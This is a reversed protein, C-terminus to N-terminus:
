YPSRVDRRAVPVSRQASAGLISPPDNSQVRPQMVGGRGQMVSPVEGPVTPIVSPMSNPIRVPTSEIMAPPYNHGIVQETRGSGPVSGVSVATPQQRGQPIPRAAGRERAREQADWYAKEVWPGEALVINNHELLSGKILHLMVISKNYESLSRYFELQARARRETARLLNDMNVPLVGQGQSVLNEWGEVDRQSADWQNLKLQMQQYHSALLAYHDSLEHLAALEKDELVAHERALSLQANRLGALQRRAGFANPLIELRVAGEQFDGGTLGEFASSGPEPFDLGSRQSRALSDGVGLWRYLASVNVDPLLQNKASIMEMERQKINWRQQRLEVNRTLTEGQITYWDFEVRAETADDIPRILRGDTPAWGMLFRLKRERGVVGEDRGPLNAGGFAADVEAKFQHVQARAQAEVFEAAEGAQMRDRVTRWAKLSTEHAERATEVAWYAAQLDWYALEVEKVLNRVTIEYQALSIDENIRALVVPVRNVMTGRGRALPHQLQVELAQTWDSPLARGLGIPINNAGYITQSRVTAVGGTAIRKSIATQFSSDRGNFLTPQFINGAGVNRPRDTNGYGFVTSLQADFEALANEVGGVQNAQVAGRPLTRNGLADVALPQPTVTSAVVAPDYATSLQRSDSGLVTASLKGTQQGTGPVARVLKSNSLAFSVTDELTLDLFEFNQNTISYPETAHEVEALRHAHVFPDELEMAQDLFSSLDGRDGVYFPRSPACGTALLTGLQLWAISRIISRKM